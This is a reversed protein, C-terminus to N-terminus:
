FCGFYIAEALSGAAGYVTIWVCASAPSASTAMVVAIALNAGITGLIRRRTTASDVASVAPLALLTAALAIRLKNSAAQVPSPGRAATTM